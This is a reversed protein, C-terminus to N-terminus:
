TLDEVPAANKAVDRRAIRQLFDEPTQHSLLLFLHQSASEDVEIAWLLVLLYAEPQMRRVVGFYVLIYEEEFNRCKLCHSWHQHASIRCKGKKNNANDGSSAASAADAADAADTDADADADDASDAADANADTSEDNADDQVAASPGGFAVAANRRVTGRQPLKRCNNLLHYNIAPFISVSDCSTTGQGIAQSCYGCTVSWEHQQFVAAFNNAEMDQSVDRDNQKNHLRVAAERMLSAEEESLTEDAEPLQECEEEMHRAMGHGVAVEMQDPALGDDTPIACIPVAEQCHPCTDCCDFPPWIQELVQGELNTGCSCTLTFDNM